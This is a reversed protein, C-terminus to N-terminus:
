KKIFKYTTGSTKVMYVGQALSGIYLTASGDQRAKTRATLSGNASYVNIYSATKLGAFILNDGEQRVSYTGAVTNGIGTTPTEGYTISKVRDLAFRTETDGSKITLTDGKVLVKSNETLVVETKTDDSQWIRLITNKDAAHSTISLAASLVITAITKKM